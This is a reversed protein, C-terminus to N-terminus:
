PNLPRTSKREVFEPALMIRAADPSDGAIASFALQASHRGLEFSPLRVTTLPPDLHDSLPADNYGVISVDDPCRLGVDRLADLAGVAMLDNHAFIATPQRGAPQRFLDATLRRGEAVSAELAVAGTSVDIVDPSAAIAARYGDSRGLFSSIRQTGPLQAIRRHGLRILHNVAIRAGQVDDHLVERHRDPRGLDIQPGFGRVALVVPVRSEVEAVFEEDTTHVASLILGDVRNRLLRTVVSRLLAPDDHTEAVLPMADRARAEFEIGRLVSVVFPNALDAVVVGLAGTTGKRLSQAVANTRYGLSDAAAQVRARTAESVLHAQEDSLARSATAVHVGAKKAVDKLTPVRSDAM